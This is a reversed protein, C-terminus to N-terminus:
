GRSVIHEFAREDGDHVVVFRDAVRCLIQQLRRPEGGRRELVGFTEEARRTAQARGAQNGVHSHGAHRADLQILREDSRAMADRRDDDRGVRVLHCLRAPAHRAKGAVEDLRERRVLKELTYVFRERLRLPAPSYWPRLRNDPADAAPHQRATVSYRTVIARRAAHPYSQRMVKVAESCHDRSRGGKEEEESSLGTRPSARKDWGSLLSLLGRMFVAGDTARSRKSRKSRSSASARSVHAPSGIASAGFGKATSQASARSGPHRRLVLANSSLTHPWWNTVSETSLVAILSSRVASSSSAPLGRKM